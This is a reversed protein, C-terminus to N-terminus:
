MSGGLFWQVVLSLQKELLLLAELFSYFGNGVNDM